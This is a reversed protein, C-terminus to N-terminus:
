CCCNNEFTDYNDDKRIKINKDKKYLTFYKNCKTCKSIGDKNNNLNILCKNTVIGVGSCYPCIALLM